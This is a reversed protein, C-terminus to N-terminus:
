EMSEQTKQIAEILEDYDKVEGLRELFEDHALLQALAALIRLHQM